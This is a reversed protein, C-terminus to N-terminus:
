DKRAAWMATMRESVAAARVADCIRCKRRGGKCEIVNDGELPHGNRCHTRRRREAINQCERCRRKGSALTILNHGEYPHGQPCHTVKAQWGRGREDRDAMNRQHTGIYLHDEYNQCPPNDCHHCAEEDPGLHEGRLHGLIWRHAGLRICKGTGDIYSFAGYGDANLGGTWPWCEGRGRKEVKSWYRAIDDGVILSTELPDGTRRWRNYHKSCLGRATGPVGTEGDCGDIYCTRKPANM